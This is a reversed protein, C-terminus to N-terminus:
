EMVPVVRNTISEVMFEGSSSEGVVGRIDEDDLPKEPTQVFGHFKCWGAFGGTAEGALVGAKGGCTMVAQRVTCDLIKGGTIKAAICGSPKDRSVNRVTVFEIRTNKLTGGSIEGILGMGFEPEKDGLNLMLNTIVYNCGDFTVNNKLEKIIYGYKNCTIGECDINDRLYFTWGDDNKTGYEGLPATEPLNEINDVNENYLALWDEFDKRSYIGPADPAEIRISDGWPIIKDPYVVPTIGEMRITLPYQYGGELGPLVSKSPRVKQQMGTIDNLKIYDIEVGYPIIVPYVTRAPDDEHKPLRYGSNKKGIFESSGFDYLAGDDVSVKDVNLEFSEPYAKNTWVRSVHAGLIKEKLHVTLTDNNVDSFGEGLFILLMSFKHYFKYNVDAYQRKAAALIDDIQGDDTFINVYHDNEGLQIYNTPKTKDSYPYYAFTLGLSNLAIDKISSSIFAKSGADDSYSLCVNKLYDCDDDKHGAATNVRSCNNEHFSFFGIEDGKGFSLYSIGIQPDPTVRASKIDTGVIEGEIRLYTDALANYDSNDDRECSSFVSIVFLALLAVAIINKKM